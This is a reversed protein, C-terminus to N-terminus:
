QEAEKSRKIEKWHPLNGIARIQRTGVIIYSIVHSVWRTQTPESILKERWQTQHKMECLRFGKAVWSLNKMIWWVARAWMVTVVSRWHYGLGIYCFLTAVGRETFSRCMFNEELLNQRHNQIKHSKLKERRRTHLESDEPINKRTRLQIDVSTEPARIISAARVESVDTSM